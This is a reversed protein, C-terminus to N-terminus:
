AKVSDQQIDFKKMYKSFNRLVDKYEEFTLSGLNLLKMERAYIMVCDYSFMNCIGSQRMTEYQEMIEKTIEM